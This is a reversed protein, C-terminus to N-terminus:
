FLRENLTYRYIIISVLCLAVHLLLPQPSPPVLLGHERAGKAGRARYFYTMFLTGGFAVLYIEHKEGGWGGGM